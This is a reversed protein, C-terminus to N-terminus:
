DPTFWLSLGDETRGRPIYEGSVVGGYGDRKLQAFFTKYDIAGPGPEHRGEAAAIQVHRVLPQVEKWTGLVDGTIPHAHYADFQLALNPAAVEDLIERALGFDALFYGPMDFPNIPEISFEVDPADKTLWTLNDVFVKRAASGQANGAMVHIRASPALRAYRVAERAGTRFREESGPVAAFGREGGAWDGAPTNISILLLGDAELATRLASPDMEYPFLMEVLDFGAARAAAFRAPLPHETFLVSLNAAFRM